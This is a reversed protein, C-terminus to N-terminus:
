KKLGALTNGVGALLVALPVLLLGLYFGADLGVFPVKVNNVILGGEAAALAAAAGYFAVPGTKIANGLVPIIFPAGEVALFGVGNLLLQQNNAVLDLAGL